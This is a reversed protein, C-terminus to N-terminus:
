PKAFGRVSINLAAERSLVLSVDSLAFAGEARVQGLPRNLELTLLFTQSNSPTTFTWSGEAREAFLDRSALMEGTQGGVAQQLPLLKWQLGIASQFESSEAQWGLRYGTGPQLLVIQQLIRCHEPQTGSLTFRLKQSEPMQDAMVGPAPNLLWDLGHGSIPSRFNANALPASGSPAQMRSWGSQHMRDMVRVVADFRNLSVLRDETAGLLATWRSLKAAEDVARPPHFGAAKLAAPEIANVRNEALVFQLYSFAVESREPIMGLMTEDGVNFAYVESFLPASDYPTIELASKAVPLFKNKDHQRFYFNALTWKPMYMHNVRASELYEREAKELDHSQMEALLGLRARVDAIYPNRQAAQRLLMESEQPRLEALSILYDANFPVLRSAAAVADPTQRQVIWGASFLVVSYAAAALAVTALVIRAAADRGRLTYTETPAM